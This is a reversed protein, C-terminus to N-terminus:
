THNAAQKRETTRRHIDNQTDKTSTKRRESLDVLNDSNKVLMLKYGLARAVKVITTLHPSWVRLEGWAWLTARSIGADDALDNRQAPTLQWIHRLIEEFIEERAITM